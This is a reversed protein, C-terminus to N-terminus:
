LVKLGLPSYFNFHASLIIILSTIKKRWYEL